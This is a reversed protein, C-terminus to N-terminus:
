LSQKMTKFAKSVQKTLAKNIAEGDINPINPTINPSVMPSPNKIPSPDKMGNDGMNGREMLRILRAIEEPTEEFTEFVEGNKDVSKTYEM